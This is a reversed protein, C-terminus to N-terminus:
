VIPKLQDGYPNEVPLTLTEEELVTNSMRKKVVEYEDDSDIMQQQGDETEKIKDQFYNYKEAIPSSELSQDAKRFSLKPASAKAARSMSMM